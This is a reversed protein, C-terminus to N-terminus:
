PASVQAIVTTGGTVRQGNEVALTPRATDPLYLETTSGFKIIGFPVGCRNVPLQVGKLDHAQSLIKDVAAESDLSVYAFPKPKRSDPKGITRSTNRPQAGCTITSAMADSLKRVCKELMERPTM